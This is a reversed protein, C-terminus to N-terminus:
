REFPHRGDEVIYRLGHLTSAECYEKFAGICCKSDKVSRDKPLQYHSPSPVIKSSGLSM